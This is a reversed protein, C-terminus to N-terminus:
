SEELEDLNKERIREPMYKDLVFRLQMCNLVFFLPAGFIMFLVAIQPVYAVSGLLMAVLVLNQVVLFVTTKMNNFAMMFSNVLTMRITNDFRSLVAWLYMNEVWYLLFLFGLAVLMVLRFTQGAEVKYLCLYIDLALFGGIFLDILGIVCGQKLNRRFSKFFMSWVSGGEDRVLKLAVYHAATTSAGFTVIPISCVAWLVHLIIMDGLKALFQWIPGEFNFFTNM